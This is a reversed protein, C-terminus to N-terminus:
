GEKPLKAVAALIADAVQEPTQWICMGETQEARAKEAFAKAVKVVAEVSFGGEFPTPEKQNLGLAVGGARVFVTAIVWGDRTFCIGRFM